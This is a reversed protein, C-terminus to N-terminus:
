EEEFAQAIFKLARCNASVTHVVNDGPGVGAARLAVELTVTGNMAAIGYRAGHHDAFPAALEDAKFGPEGTYNGGWRGSKVVEVVADVERQDHIPWEPFPVARVPQGGNIALAPMFM